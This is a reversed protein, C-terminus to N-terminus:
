SDSPESTVRLEQVPESHEVTPEPDPVGEPQPNTEVETDLRKTDAPDQRDGAPETNHTM